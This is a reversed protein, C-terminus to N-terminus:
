DSSYYNGFFEKVVIRIMSYAPVAFIMGTIGGLYGAVLIVIFIEVPHVQMSKGFIIPTLVFMDIAKIVAFIIAMKWFLMSLIEVTPNTPLLATISIVLGLGMAIFPGVYPIINFIGTLVGILIANPINAVYCALGIAVGVIINDILVGAFYRVVQVRSQALIRDYNDRFSVPIASRIMKFFIEKDKLAFFSLFIVAFVLIFLAGIFSFLNGALNSISITSIFSKMQTILIDSIHENDKLFGYKYLEIDAQHLWMELANAYLTPDIASVAEIEKIIFPILIYFGFFILSVLVLLTITAALSSSCTRNKIKIKQLLRMLPSGISAFVIALLIFILVNYFLYGLLILIGLFIIITFFNKNNMKISKIITSNKTKEGEKESEM